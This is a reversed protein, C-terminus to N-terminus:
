MVRSSCRHARLHDPDSHSNALHGLPYLLRVGGKFVQTEHRSDMHHSLVWERPNDESGWVDKLPQSALCTDPHQPAWMIILGESVREKGPYNRPYVPSASGKLGLDAIRSWLSTRLSDCVASYHPKHGRTQGLLSSLPKGMVM